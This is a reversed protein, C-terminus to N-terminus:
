SIHSDEFINGSAVIWRYPKFKETEKMDKDSYPYKWLWKTVLIKTM